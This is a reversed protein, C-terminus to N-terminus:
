KHAAVSQAAEPDYQTAMKQLLTDYSEGGRKAQQIYRHTERTVAITTRDSMM